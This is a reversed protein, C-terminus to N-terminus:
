GKLWKGTGRTNVKVQRLDLADAADLIFHVLRDGPVRDRLNPPLLLPTGRDIPVFRAAM